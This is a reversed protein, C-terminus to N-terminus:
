AGDVRRVDPVVPLVPEGLGQAEGKESLSFKLLQFSPYSFQPM